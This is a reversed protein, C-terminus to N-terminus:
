PDGRLVARLASAYTVGAAPNVQLQYAGRLEYEVPDEITIVTVEPRELDALAGHLTTTKGSGTPGAVLLAGVSRDIVRELEMQMANELGLQTLSPPMRTKDLLRLILGEGAITPLIAVRIDIGRGATTRVAFRGDQPRRHEAVDLGALVKIRTLLGVAEGAPVVSSEQVVGDVRFRVQVYDRDPVFHIDSARAAIARRLVDNVERVAPADELLAGELQLEEDRLTGGYALESLLAALAERHTVSVEIRRGSVRELEAIAEPSPSAFAVRLTDASQEFPIAAVRELVELPVSRVAAPDLSCQEVDVYPVGQTEALMRARVSALRDSVRSRGCARSSSRRASPS